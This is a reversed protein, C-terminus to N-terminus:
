ARDDIREYNGEEGRIVGVSEKLRKMERTKRAFRSVGHGHRISASHPCRRLKGHRDGDLTMAM